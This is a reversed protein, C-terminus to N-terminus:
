GSRPAASSRTSPEAGDREACHAELMADSAWNAAPALRVAETAYQTAAGADGRRRAEVFLGRLGLVRTEDNDMM